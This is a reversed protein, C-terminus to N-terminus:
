RAISRLRQWWPGAHDSVKAFPKRFFYAHRFALMAVFERHCAFPGAGRKCKIRGNGYQGQYQEHGGSKCGCLISARRSIKQVIQEASTLRRPLLTLNGMLGRGSTDSLSIGAVQRNTEVSHFIRETLQGSRDLLKLITVLLKFHLELAHLVVRLVTELLETHFASRRWRGLRRRPSGTGRM